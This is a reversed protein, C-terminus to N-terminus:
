LRGCSMSAECRHITAVYPSTAEHRTATRRSAERISNGATIKNVAATASSISNSHCLSSISDGKTKRRVHQPSVQRTTCGLFLNLWLMVASILQLKQRQPRYRPPWRADVGVFLAPHLGGNNVTVTSRASIATIITDPRFIIWCSNVSPRLLREIPERGDHSYLM